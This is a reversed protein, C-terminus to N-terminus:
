RFGNKIAGWSAHVLVPERVPLASTTAVVFVDLDNGDRDSAFAIATCDPSWAAAADIGSGSTIQVATGGAPPILWVEPSGSRSSTFAIAQGDSSWCPDFNPGLVTTVQTAV